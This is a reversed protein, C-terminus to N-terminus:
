SKEEAAKVTFVHGASVQWDGGIPTRVSVDGNKKHTLMLIPLWEPTVQTFIRNAQDFVGGFDAHYTTTGRTNKVLLGVHRGCLDLAWVSQEGDAATIAQPQSPATTTTM